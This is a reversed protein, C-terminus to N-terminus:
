LMRFPTVGLFIMDSTEGEGGDVLEDGVSCSEMEEDRPDSPQISRYIEPEQGVCPGVTNPLQFCSSTMYMRREPMCGVWGPEDRRRCKRMMEDGERACLKRRVNMHASSCSRYLCHSSVCAVDVLKVLEESDGLGTRADQKRDRDSSLRPLFSKVSIKPLLPM